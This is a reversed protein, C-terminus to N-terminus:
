IDCHWKRGKFSTVNQIQMGTACLHSIYVNLCFTMLHAMKHKQPFNLLVILFTEWNKKKKTDKTGTILRKM